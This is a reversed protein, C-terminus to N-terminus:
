IYVTKEFKFNICRYPLFTCIFPPMLVHFFNLLSDKTRNKDTDKQENIFFYFRKLVNTYYTFFRQM